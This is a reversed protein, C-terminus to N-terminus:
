PAHTAGLGGAIGLRPEGRNDAHAPKVPKIKKSFIKLVGVERVVLVKEVM